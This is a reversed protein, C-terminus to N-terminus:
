VQTREIRDIPVQVLPENLQFSLFNLCSCEVIAGRPFMKYLEMKKAVIAQHDNNACGSLSLTLHDTFREGPEIVILHVREGLLKLNSLCTPTLLAGDRDDTIEEACTEAQALAEGFQLLLEKRGLAVERPKKHLLHFSQSAWYHQLFTRLQLEFHYAIKDMRYIASYVVGREGFEGPTATRDQREVLEFGAKMFDDIATLEHSNAVIIRFGLVDPLREPIESADKVEIRKRNLKEVISDASKLRCFFRSLMVFPDSCVNGSTIQDLLTRMILRRGDRLPSLAQEIELYSPLIM